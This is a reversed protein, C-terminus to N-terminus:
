PAEQVHLPCAPVGCLSATAPTIGLRGLRLALAEGGLPELAITRGRAHFSRHAACIFQIFASDVEATDSLDLLADVDLDLVRLLETKLEGLTDLCAARPLAIRLAPSPAARRAPGAADRGANERAQAKLAESDLAHIRSRDLAFLYGVVDPEVITAFLVYFPLTNCVPADLDGVAQFDTRCDVVLGSAAMTDMLDLPTKGRAHVDHILDYEVLYLYKGGALANELSLLDPAFAPRGDPFLIEASTDPQARREEPLLERTLTGLAELDSAIDEQDSERANRVLAHLRDFGALLASVIRGDPVIEGNRVMHLINELKHGLSQVNALGLFGAGGKISHAARFVTNVLESDIDAGAQEMDMLNSEIGALHEGADEMFSILIDDDSDMSGRPSSKSINIWACPGCCSPSIRPYPACGSGAGLKELSNHAAILLGIGVSDIIRVRSCDITLAAGDQGGRGLAEKLSARFTEAMSAVIDGEPSIVRSALQTENM